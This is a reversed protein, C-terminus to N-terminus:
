DVAWGDRILEEVDVFHLPPIAVSEDDAALVIGDCGVSVIRGFKIIRGGEIKKMPLHRMPWAAQNPVMKRVREARVPDLSM